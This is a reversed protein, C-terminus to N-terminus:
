VCSEALTPPLDSAPDAGSISLAPRVEAQVPQTLAWCGRCDLALPSAADPHSQTPVLCFSSGQSGEPGNPVLSVLGRPIPELVTSKLCLTAIQQGAVPMLFISVLISFKWM